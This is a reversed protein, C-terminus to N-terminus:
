GRQAQLTIDRLQEVFVTPSPVAKLGTYDSDYYRSPLTIGTQKRGDVLIHITVRGSNPREYARVTVQAM